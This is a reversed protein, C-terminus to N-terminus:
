VSLERLPQRIHPAIGNTIAALWLAANLKNKRNNAMGQLLKLWGELCLAQNLERKAHPCNYSGQWEGRLSTAGKIWRRAM